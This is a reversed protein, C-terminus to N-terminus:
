QVKKKGPTLIFHLSTNFVENTPSEFPTNHKGERSESSMRKEAHRKQLDSFQELKLVDSFLIM